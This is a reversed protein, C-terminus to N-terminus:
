GTRRRRLSGLGLLAAGIWAGDGGCGCSKCQLDSSEECPLEWIRFPLGESTTILQDDPGFTIAEGQPQANLTLVEPSVSWDIGCGRWIWATTYSRLVVLNGAANIAGGTVKRAEESDGSLSIESEESLPTTKDCNLSSALFVKSQGDANKTVIRVAGEGDVLLTEANHPKSEPYNLHCAVADATALISEPVVYIVVESRVEDNDGIDGIFICSEADVVDPCPGAALDEWDVQEAGRITQDGLFSGDLGFLHLVPTDGQDDLTYYVDTDLRGATVGSSEPIDADPFTM